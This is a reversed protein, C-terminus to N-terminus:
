SGPVQDRSRKRGASCPVRAERHLVYVLPGSLLLSFTYRPLIM